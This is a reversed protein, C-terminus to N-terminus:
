GRPVRVKPLSRPKRPPRNSPPRPSTSPTHAGVVTVPPPMTARQLEERQTHARTLWTARKEREGPFLADLIASSLLAMDRDDEGRHSAVFADLDHALEQATAYREERARALARRVIAWLSEPYTPVTARPDPVLGARVAMLTESDEKRQFLRRMTTMEWLTTGLMYIDSRRDLPLQAIQEPSLYPLKGKVIGARSRSRGKSKALGFDFLKVEGDFTLFVNSPNVDRHVVHLPHGEEDVLEHAYHLADAVRAAIWAAHDVRLAVKREKCANWVELLTRGLLLEMAIFHQEEDTGYEYTAAINPHSLRSLMRAEDVFMQVLLEDHRLEHRMVKVAALREVGSADRARGLYVTAMGGGAIKVVVDYPGLRKPRAATPVVPFPVM